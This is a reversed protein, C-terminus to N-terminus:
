SFFCSSLLRHLSLFFLDTIYRHALTAPLLLRHLPLFLDKKVPKLHLTARGVGEVQVGLGWFHSVLNEQTFGGLTYSKTVVARPFSLVPYGFLQPIVFVEQSLLLM